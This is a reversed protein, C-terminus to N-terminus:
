MPKIKDLLTGFYHMKLELDSALDRGVSIRLAANHAWEESEMVAGIRLMDFGFSGGFHLNLGPPSRKVWDCAAAEYDQFTVMGPLQMYLLSGNWPEDGFSLRQKPQVSRYLSILQGKSLRDGFFDHLRNANRALRTMRKELMVRSPRPLRWVAAPEPIGSLVNMFHVFRERTEEHELEKGYVAFFGLNTLEMGFQFYKIGSEICVLYIHDPLRDAYKDFLPNAIGTLTRDIVIFLPHDQRHRSLKDFLLEMHVADHVPWTVGPELLLCGIPEGSDILAYIGDASLLKAQPYLDRILSMGEFYYGAQCYMPLHGGAFTQYAILAVELAKMGSNTLFGISRRRLRESMPYYEVFFASEYAKIMESGSTRLYVNQEEQLDGQEKFPGPTSSPSQWDSSALLGGLQKLMLRLDQKVTLFVSSTWDSPRQRWRKLRAELNGIRGRYFDIPYLHPDTEAEIRELKFRCEGLLWELEAFDDEWEANTDHM